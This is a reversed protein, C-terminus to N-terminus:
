HARVLSIQPRSVTGHLKIEFTADCGYGSSGGTDTLSDSPRQGDFAAVDGYYVPICISGRPVGCGQRLMADLTMGNGQVDAVGLRCPISEGLYTRSEARDINQDVRGAQQRRPGNDITRILFPFPDAPDVNRSDEIAHPGGNGEHRRVAM